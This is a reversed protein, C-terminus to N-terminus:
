LVALSLSPFGHEKKMRVEVVVEEEEVVVDEVVVVDADEVDGEEETAQDRLIVEVEEVGEEVVVDLVEEKIPRHNQILWKIL